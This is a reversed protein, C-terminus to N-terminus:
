GSPVPTKGASILTQITRGEAERVMQVRNGFLAVLGDLM